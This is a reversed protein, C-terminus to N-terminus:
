LIVPVNPINLIQEKQECTNIEPRSTLSLNSSITGLYIGFVIDTNRKMLPHSCSDPPECFIVHVKHRKVKVLGICGTVHVARLRRFYSCLHTERGGGERKCLYMYALGVQMRMCVQTFMYLGM